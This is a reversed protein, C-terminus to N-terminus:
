LWWDSARQNIVCFLKQRPWWNRQTGLLSMHLLMETQLSPWLPGFPSYSTSPPMGPPCWKGLQRPSRAWQAPSPPGACTYIHSSCCRSRWWPCWHTKHALVHGFLLSGQSAFISKAVHERAGPTYSKGATKKRRCRRFLMIYVNHDANQLPPFQSILGGKGLGGIECSAAWIRIERMYCATQSTDLRSGLNIFSSDSLWQLLDDM